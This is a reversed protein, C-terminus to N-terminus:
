AQYGTGPKYGPMYEWKPKANARAILLVALEVGAVTLWKM